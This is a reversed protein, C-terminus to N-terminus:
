RRRSPISVVALTTGLFLLVTTAPEPIREAAINVSADARFPDLSSVPAPGVITTVSLGSGNNISSLNMSLTLSNKEILPALSGGTVLAFSTTFLAGTAPPGIPGTLTSNALAGSLLLPNGPAPDYLEFTGGTFNQIVLFGGFVSAPGSETLGNMSFSADPLVIDAMGSLFDQYDIATNQDGTTPVILDDVTSLTTGDFEVDAPADSGLSLKIITGAHLTGCSSGLWAFLAVGVCTIRIYRLM